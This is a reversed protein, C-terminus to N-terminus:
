VNCRAWTILKILNEDVVVTRPKLKPQNACHPCLSCYTMAVSSCFLTAALLSSAKFLCISSNKSLLSLWTAWTNWSASFYVRTGRFYMNRPSHLTGHRYNCALRRIRTDHERYTEDAHQNYVKDNSLPGSQEDVKDSEEVWGVFRSLIYMCVCTNIHLTM